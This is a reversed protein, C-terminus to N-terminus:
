NPKGALGNYVGGYIVQRNFDKDWLGLTGVVTHLTIGARQAAPILEFYKNLVYNYYRSLAIQQEFNVKSESVEIGNAQVVTFNLDSIRILKGTAALKTLTAAVSEENRKQQNADLSYELHMQTGIGDIKTIGDAEWKTMMQLLRELKRSGPQELGYEDVFLQLEGSGEEAYEAYAARVMAVIDQVYNEGLYDPWYFSSAANAENSASRLMCGDIDSM